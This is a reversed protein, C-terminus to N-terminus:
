KLPPQAAPTGNYQKDWEQMQLLLQYSSLIDQAFKTQKESLNGGKGQLMMQASVALQEDTMNEGLSKYYAM